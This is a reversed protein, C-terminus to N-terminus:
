ISILDGPLMRSFKAALLEKRAEIFKDFNELKWLEPDKPILHLNLYAEQANNSKFRNPSFWQAPTADHSM